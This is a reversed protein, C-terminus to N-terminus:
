TATITVDFTTRHGDPSAIWGKTTGAKEATFGANFSADDNNAGIVASEFHLLTSDDAGGTGTWVGNQDGDPVIILSQGLDLRVPGNALEAPTVILPAPVGKIFAGGNADGNADVFEDPTPVGHIFPAEDSGSSGGQTAAFAAAGGTLLGVTLISATVVTFIRKRM